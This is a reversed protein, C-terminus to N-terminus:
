RATSSAQDFIPLDNVLAGRRLPELQERLSAPASVLIAKIQDIAQTRRESASDKPCKLLRIMAVRAGGSKPIVTASGSM